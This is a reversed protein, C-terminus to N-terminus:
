AEKAVAWWGIWEKLATRTELARVLGIRDSYFTLYNEMCTLLTEDDLHPGLLKLAELRSKGFELENMIPTVQHLPLVLSKGDSVDDHSGLGVIARIKALQLSLVDLKKRDLPHRHMLTPLRLILSQHDDTPSIAGASSTTTSGTWEPHNFHVSYSWGDTDVDGRMDLTWDSIWEWGSPAPFSFRDVKIDGKVDSWPASDTPLLAATSFMPEGLLCHGRQNEYLEDRAVEVRPPAPVGFTQPYASSSISGSTPSGRPPLSPGTAGSVTQPRKALSSSQQQLSSSSSAPVTSTRPLATPVPYRNNNNNNNIQSATTSISTPRRPIPATSSNNSSISDPRYPLPPAAAAAAVGERTARIPKPPPPPQSM